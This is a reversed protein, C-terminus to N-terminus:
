FFYFILLVIYVELTEGICTGTRTNYYYTDNTGPAVYQKWTGTSTISNRFLNQDPNDYGSVRSSSDNNEIINANPPLDWRSEGTKPNFYYMNGLDDWAYEWSNLNQRMTDNSSKDQDSGTDYNDEGSAGSESFVDDSNDSSNFEM